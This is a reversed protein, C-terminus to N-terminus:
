IDKMKVFGNEGKLYIRPATIGNENIYVHIGKITKHQGNHIVEKGILKQLYDIDM